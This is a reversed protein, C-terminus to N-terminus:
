QGSLPRFHAALQSPPWLMVSVPNYCEWLAGNEIVIMGKDAAMNYRYPYYGEPTPRPRIGYVAEMGTSFPQQHAQSLVNTRCFGVDGNHIFMDGKQYSAGAKWPAFGSAFLGAKAPPDGGLKVYLQLDQAGTDRLRRIYGIDRLIAAQTDITNACADAM